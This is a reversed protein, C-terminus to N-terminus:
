CKDKEKKRLELARKRLEKVKIKGDLWEEVMSRWSGGIVERCSSCYGDSNSSGYPVQIEKWCGLCHTWQLSM